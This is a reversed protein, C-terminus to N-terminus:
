PLRAEIGHRALLRAAQRDFTVFVEGGLTRVGAFAIAGDAFDGGDELVALGAEVVDRECAVKEAATLRRIAAAIETRDYGYLSRLVWVLECFVPIPIAVLSASHLIARAAEAQRAEEGQTGAVAVRVLLNTDATIRVGQRAM